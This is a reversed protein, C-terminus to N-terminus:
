RSEGLVRRRHHSPYGRDCERRLLHPTSLPSFLVGPTMASDTGFRVSLPM